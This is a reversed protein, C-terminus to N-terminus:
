FGASISYHVDKLMRMIVNLISLLVSALICLVLALTYGDKVITTEQTRASFYIMLLVGTFSFLMNLVELNKLTEKLLIFSSVLTM